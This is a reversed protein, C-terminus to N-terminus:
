AASEKAKLLDNATVKHKTAKAIKEIAEKSPWSVGRRIRSVQSQSLGVLEGFTADTLKKDKIFEDLKM